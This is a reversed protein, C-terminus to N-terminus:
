QETPRPRVPPVPSSARVLLVPQASSRLVRDAVSGYVWRGLGSRGHTSMVILDVSQERAYEVIATAADGVEIAYDVRIGTERLREATMQLYQRANASEEAVTPGTDAIIVMEGDSLPPAPRTVVRFLRLEAGVERAIYAAYALAKEALESGDLPVLLRSFM